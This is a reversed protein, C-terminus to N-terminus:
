DKTKEELRELRPALSQLLMRIVSTQSRATAKAYDALLRAEDETVRANIQVKVM